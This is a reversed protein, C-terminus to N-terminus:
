GFKQKMSVKVVFAEIELRKWLNEPYYGLLSPDWQLVIRVFLEGGILASIKFM